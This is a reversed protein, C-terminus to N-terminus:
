VVESYPFEASQHLGHLVVLRSLPMARGEVDCQALADLDGNNIKSLKFNPNCGGSLHLTSASPLGQCM